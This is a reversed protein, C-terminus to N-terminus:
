NQPIKRSLAPLCHAFAELLDINQLYERGFVIDARNQYRPYDSFVM